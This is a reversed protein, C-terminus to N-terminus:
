DGADHPLRAARLFAKDRRTEVPHKISLVSGQRLPPPFFNRSDDFITAFVVFPRRRASEKRRRQDTGDCRARCGTVLGKRGSAEQQKRARRGRPESGTWLNRPYRPNGRFGTIGVTRDLASKRSLLRLITVEAPRQKRYPETGTSPNEPDLLRARSWCSRFCTRRNDEENETIRSHM